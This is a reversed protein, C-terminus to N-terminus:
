TNIEKKIPPVDRAAARVRDAAASLRERGLRGDAVAQGIAGCLADLHDGAAVLLLDAGAKLSAIATDVLSRGRLTAKAELDDSVVLGRFGLRERLLQATARSTPSPEKPDVAPVLAPGLMVAGVGAAIVSRFIALGPELQAMSLSVTAEAIAPDGDIDSHGPFHKAVAIVGGAQFGRVAAAAIRAVERHNTGLTRGALWPNRGTIVDLIPALFMTVGMGRAAAATARCSTEIATDSMQQLEALHPLPPVLSHLRQIGAPEQDVAILAPGVRHRVQEAVEMFQDRTEAQSRESAMRRAVYEDRTEGLLISRGGRDLFQKLADTLELDAIAPLLVAHVDEVITSL